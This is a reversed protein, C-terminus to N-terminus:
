GAVCPHSGDCHDGHPICYQVGGSITSSQQCCAYVWGQGDECWACKNCSEDSATAPPTFTLHAGFLCAALGLRPVLKFRQITSRM